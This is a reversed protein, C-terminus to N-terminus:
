SPHHLGETGVCSVSRPSPPHGRHEGRHTLDHVDVLIFYRWALWEEDCKTVFRARNPVRHHLTRGLRTISHRSANSARGDAQQRPQAQPAAEPWPMPQRSGTCPARADDPRRRCHGRAYRRRLPGERRGTAHRHRCAHPPSRFWHSSRDRCPKSRTPVSRAPTPLTSGGEAWSRDIYTKATGASRSRARRRRDVVGEERVASYARCANFRATGTRTRM